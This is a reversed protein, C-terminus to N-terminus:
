IFAQQMANWGLLSFSPTESLCGESHSDFYSVLVALTQEASFSVLRLIVVASPLSKHPVSTLELFYDIKDEFFYKGFKTKLNM